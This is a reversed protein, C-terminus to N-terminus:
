NYIICSKQSFHMPELKISFVKTISSVREINYQYAQSLWLLSNLNFLYLYLYGTHNDNKNKNIIGSGEHFLVLFVNKAM